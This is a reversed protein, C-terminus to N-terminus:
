ERSRRWFITSRDIRVQSMLLHGIAEVDAGVGDRAVEFPAALRAAKGRHEERSRVEPDGALLMRGQKGLERGM